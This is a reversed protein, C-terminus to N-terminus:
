SVGAQIMPDVVREPTLLPFGLTAYNWVAADFSANWAAFIAGRDFAARLDPPAREWDLIAGDAHWVQAPAAGLAFACVIASATAAYTYTGVAGLDLGRGLTEFDIFILDASTFM